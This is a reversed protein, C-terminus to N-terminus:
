NVFLMIQIYVLSEAALTANTFGQIIGKTNSHRGFTNLCKNLQIFCNKHDNIIALDIPTFGDDNLVPGLVIMRNAHSKDIGIFQNLVDVNGYQAAIHLPTNNYKDKESRLRHCYHGYERNFLKQCIEIYKVDNLYAAYHFINWKTSDTKCVYSYRNWSDKGNDYFIKMCKSILQYCQTGYLLSLIKHRSSHTYINACQKAIFEDCPHFGIKTLVSSVQQYPVILSEEMEANEKTIKKMELERRFEQQLRTITQLITVAKEYSYHEGGTAVDFTHCDLYTHLSRLRLIDNAIKENDKMNLTIQQLLSAEDIRSKRCCCQIKVLYKEGNISNVQLGKEKEKEQEQEENNTETELQKVVSKLVVSKLFKNDIVDKYQVFIIGWDDFVFPMRYLISSKLTCRGNYHVVFGDNRFCDLKKHYNNENNDNENCHGNNNINKTLEVVDKEQNMMTKMEVYSTPLFILQTSWCNFHNLFQDDSCHKHDSERIIKASLKIMGTTNSKPVPIKMQQIKPNNVFQTAMRNKDENPNIYLQSELKEPTSKLAELESKIRFKYKLPCHEKEQKDANEAKEAKEETCVEKQQKEKQTTTNEQYNCGSDGDFSNFKIIGDFLQVNVICRLLDHM